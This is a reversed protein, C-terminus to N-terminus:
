EEHLLLQGAVMRDIPLTIKLNNLDGEVTAVEVGDVKSLLLEYITTFTEDIAGGDAVFAQRLDSLWFGQPSQGRVHTQRSAFAAVTGDPKLEVVPDVSPIVPLVARGRDLADIVRHVLASTVLPRVSDHVLVKAEVLDLAEVAASVSENRTRGGDVYDWKTCQIARSATESIEHRWVPNGVVLVRDFAGCRDLRYLAHHIIPHGALTSLQKPSDDGFRSGVGGALVVAVVSCDTM